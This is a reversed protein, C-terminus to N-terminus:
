PQLSAWPDLELEIGAPPDKTSDPVTNSSILSPPTPSNSSLSIWHFMAVLDRGKLMSRRACSAMDGLFLESEASITPDWSYGSIPVGLISSSPIASILLSVSPSVRSTPRGVCSGACRCVNAMSASLSSKSEGRDVLPCLLLKSTSLRGLDSFPFALNCCADWRFVRLPVLSEEVEANMPPPNFPFGGCDPVEVSASATAESSMLM